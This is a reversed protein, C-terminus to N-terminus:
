CKQVHQRAAGPGDDEGPDASQTFLRDLSARFDAPDQEPQLSSCAILSARRACCRAPRGAPVFGVLATALAIMLVAGLKPPFVAVRM